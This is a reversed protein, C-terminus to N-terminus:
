ELARLEWYAKYDGNKYRLPCGLCRLSPVTCSLGVSLLVKSSFSSSLRFLCLFPGNPPFVYVKLIQMISTFFEVWCLIVHYSPPDRKTLSTQLRADM